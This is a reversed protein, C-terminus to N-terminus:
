AVHNKFFTELQRIISKNDTMLAIERTGLLAGSQAFNHSGTLAIKKGNPMTFLMFKAHLYPKRKYLTQQGSVLKGLEIIVRNIPTAGKGPNFYVRASKKKLLRSLRGTPCYQSVLIVSAAQETLTCAQRYIISDGPMGGDILVTGVVSKFLRSRYSFQGRDARIMREYESALEHALSKDTLKLMYDTNEIGRGYLNVGGFSYVTDDAVCWKLHTRGNFPTTSFRGLWNFTVGSDRFLRTMHKTSRSKKAYYKTPIFHGALEGYTFVDAAVDVKVGRGAANALETIFGETHDDDTVLMSLFSVQQRAARISKSADAVYEHPLLLKVRPMDRM